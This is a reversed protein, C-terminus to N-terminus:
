KKLAPGKKLGPKMESTKTVKRSATGNPNVKFLNGFAKPSYSDYTNLGHRKVMVLGEKPVVTNIGGSHSIFREGNQATEISVGKPVIGKALDDPTVHFILFESQGPERAFKEQAAPEPAGMSVSPSHEPGNSVGQKPTGDSFSTKSESYAVDMMVGDAFHKMAEPSEIDGPIQVLSSKKSVTSETVVFAGTPLEVVSGDIAAGNSLTESPQGALQRRLTCFTNDPVLSDKNAQYKALAEDYTKCGTIIFQRNETLEHDVQYSHQPFAVNALRNIVGVDTSSVRVSGDPLREFSTNLGDKEALSSLHMAQEPKRVVFSFKVRGRRDRVATVLSSIGAAKITIENARASSISPEMDFPFSQVNWGKRMDFPKKQALARKQERRSVKQTGNMKDGRFYDISSKLGVLNIVATAGVAFGVGAAVLPLAWPVLLGVGLVFLTTNRITKGDAM